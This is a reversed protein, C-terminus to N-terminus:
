KGEKDVININNKTPTISAGYKNNKHIKSPVSAQPFLFIRYTEM